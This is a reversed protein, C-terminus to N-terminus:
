TQLTHVEQNHQDHPHTRSEGSFWLTFTSGMGPASRVSIQWKHLDVIRKLITLGLGFGESSRSPDGKFFRNFIQEITDPSMGIGTDRVTFYNPTLTVFIHGGEPTFKIANHILNRLVVLVLSDDAIRIINSAVEQTCTINRQECEGRFSDLVDRLLLSINVLGKQLSGETLTTLQVLKDTLADMSDIEQMANIIHQKPDTSNTALELSSRASALPTKLEHNVDQSFQELHEFMEYAPRLSKKQFLLGLFFTGISILLAYLLTRTLGIQLRDSLAVVPTGMQLYGQAIDGNAYIPLTIIRYTNNNYSLFWPNEELIPTEGVFITGAYLLKKEADFLRSRQQAITPLTIRALHEPEEMDAIVTKADAEVFSDTSKIQDNYDRFICFTGQLMLLVFIALSFGISVRKRLEPLM